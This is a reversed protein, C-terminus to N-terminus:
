CEGEPLDSTVVIEIREGTLPYTRLVRYRVGKHELYREGGYCREYIRFILEPKLGAAAAQYFESRKIGDWQASVRRRSETYVTYGNEDPEGSPTRTILEIFTDRTM